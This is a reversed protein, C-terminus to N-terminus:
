SILIYLQELELEELVYNMVRADDDFGTAFDTESISDEAIAFYRVAGIVLGQQDNSFDSYMALLKHCRDAIEEALFINLRPYEKSLNQFIEMCEDVEGQIREIESLPLAECLKRFTPAVTDPFRPLPHERRKSFIM